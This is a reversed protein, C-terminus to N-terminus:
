GTDSNPLTFWFTSGRGLTSSCGIAGGMLEVLRKTVNLGLGWGPEERVNSDESRFFQTFLKIQDELSIGLGNDIVDIRVFNEEEYVNIRIEGGKPHINGPM